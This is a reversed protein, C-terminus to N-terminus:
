SISLGLDSQIVRVTARGCEVDCVCMSWSGLASLLCRM